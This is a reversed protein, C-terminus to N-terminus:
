LGTKTEDIAQKIGNVITQNQGLFQRDHASQFCDQRTEMLPPEERAAAVLRRQSLRDTGPHKSVSSNSFGTTLTAPALACTAFRPKLGNASALKSM